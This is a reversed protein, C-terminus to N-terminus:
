HNMLQKNMKARVKNTKKNMKNFCDAHRKSSINNLEEDSIKQDIFRKSNLKAESVKRLRGKQNEAASENTLLVTTEVVPGGKVDRANLTGINRFGGCWSTRFNGQVLFADFGQEEALLSAHYITMSHARQTSSTQDLRAIIRYKNNKLNIQTLGLSNGPKLKEPSDLIKAGNYTLPESACGVLFAFVSGVACLQKFNM